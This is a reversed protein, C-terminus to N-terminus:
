IVLYNFVSNASFADEIVLNDLRLYNGPKRKELIKATDAKLLKGAKKTWRFIEELEILTELFKRLSFHKFDQFFGSTM